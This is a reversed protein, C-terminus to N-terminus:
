SAMQESADSHRIARHLMSQYERLIKFYENSNRGRTRVVHEVAREAKM